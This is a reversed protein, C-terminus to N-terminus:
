GTEIWAGTRPAVRILCPMTPSSNTEIWAGTRPAVLTNPHKYPAQILKM